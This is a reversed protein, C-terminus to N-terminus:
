GKDPSLVCTISYAVMGEVRLNKQTQAVVASEIYQSEGLLEAFIHISKFSAANGHLVLDAGDSNSISTIYLTAPTNKRIDDLIQPWLYEEKTEFIERMREKKDSLYAIQMNVRRQDDLLQEINDEAGAAKRREMIKQTQELRVRLIGACVFTILLVVAAINAVVLAFKKAAQTEKAEAPILNMALDSGSVQLQRMALGAATISCHEIRDNKVLITDDYVGASCCVNANLGFSKQLAFELDNAQVTPNELVALIEWKEEASSVEIDYYQIVSNIERECCDIYADQDDTESDIEISRIFDLEDKRFVCITVVSGHVLAILVNSGYRNCIKKNYVARAAAVVAPEIAAADVGAISCTKLLDALKDCDTAGVFICGLENQALKKLMCFDHQSEKGALAPSHRIESKIFTNMNSPLSEPLQIIQTLAPRAVLSVTARRVSIRSKRLLKKIAAGLLIPNAINGDVIAGQPVEAQGQRLLKVGSVTKKLLAASIRHESIDIGLATKSKLM